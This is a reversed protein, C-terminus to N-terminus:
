DGQLHFVTDIVGDRRLEAIRSVPLGTASATERCDYGCERNSEFRLSIDSLLREVGTPMSRLRSLALLDLTAGGNGDGFRGPRRALRSAAEAEFTDPWGSLLNWASAMARCVDSAGADARLMRRHRRGRIRPDVFGAIAVALDFVPGAGIMRVEDPLADLSHSRRRDDHHVLGGLMSLAPRIDQPVTEVSAATLPGGCRDCRDIGNTRHWRQVCACRDSPCRDTLLEWSEECFPLARVCWAARHHVSRILSSPSFRRTLLDLHVRDVPAGFIRRRGDNQLPFGMSRLDQADVGVCEAVHTIDEADHLAESRHGYRVDALSTVILLTPLREEAARHALYGALSEGPVPPRGKRMRWSSVSRLNVM